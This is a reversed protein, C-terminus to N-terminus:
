ATVDGMPAGHPARGRRDRGVEVWAATGEITRLAAALVATHEDDFYGAWSGAVRALIETRDGAAARLEDLVPGPARTYRNRSCIASLLVDLRDEETLARRM